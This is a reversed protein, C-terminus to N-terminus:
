PALDTEAPRWLELTPKTDSEVHVEPIALAEPQRAKPVDIVSCGPADHRVVTANVHALQDRAILERTIARELEVTSLGSAPFQGYEALEILGNPAVTAEYHVFESSSLTVLIEDCFRIRAPPEGAGGSAAAISLAMWLAAARASLNLRPRV